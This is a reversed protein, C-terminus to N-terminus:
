RCSHRENFELNEAAFSPIHSIAYIDRESEEWGRTQRARCDYESVSTNKM